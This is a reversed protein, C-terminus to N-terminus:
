QSMEQFIESAIHIYNRCDQNHKKLISNTLIYSSFITFEFASHMCNIIKQTESGLFIFERKGELDTIAILLKVKLSSIIMIITTM